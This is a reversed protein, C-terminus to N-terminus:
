LSKIGPSDSRYRTAIGVSSDLGLGDMKYVIQRACSGFRLRHGPVHLHVSVHAPSAWNVSGKDVFACSRDKFRLLLSIHAQRLATTSQSTQM